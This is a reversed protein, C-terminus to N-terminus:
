RLIVIAVRHILERLDIIKIANEQKLETKEVMSHHFELEPSSVTYYHHNSHVM